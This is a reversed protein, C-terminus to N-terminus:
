YTYVFECQRQRVGAISIITQTNATNHNKEEDGDGERECAPM